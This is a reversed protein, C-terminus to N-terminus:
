EAIRCDFFAFYRPLFLDYKLLEFIAVGDNDIRMRKKFESISEFLDDPVDIVIKHNSQM